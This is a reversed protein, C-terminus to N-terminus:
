AKVTSIGCVDLDIAETVRSSMMHVIRVLDTRHNGGSSVPTQLHRSRTRGICRATANRAFRWSWSGNSSMYRIRRRRSHCAQREISSFATRVSDPGPEVMHLNVRLRGIRLSLAYLDVIPSAVSRHNSDVSRMHKGM